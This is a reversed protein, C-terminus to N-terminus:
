NLGAGGFFVVDLFLWWCPSVQIAAHAGLFDALAELVVNWRAM